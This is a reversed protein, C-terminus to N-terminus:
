NDTVLMGEHDLKMHAAGINQMYQVIDELGGRRVGVPFVNVKKHAEISAVGRSRTSGARVGSDSSALIGDPKIKGTLKLICQPNGDCNIGGGIGAKGAIAIRKMLCPKGKTPRCNPDAKVMRSRSAIPSSGPTKYFSDSRPIDIGGGGYSSPSVAAMRRGEFGTGAAAFGGPSLRGAGVANMDAVEPTAAGAARPTVSNDAIPSLERGSGKFSRGIGSGVGGGSSSGSGGRSVEGMDGGAAPSSFSNAGGIPSSLANQLVAGPAGAQQYIPQDSRPYNDVETERGMTETDVIKRQPTTPRSSPDQPSEPAQSPRREPRPSTELGDPTDDDPGLGFVAAGEATSTFDTKIPERAKFSDGRGRMFPGMEAKPEALSTVVVAQQSRAAAAEFSDHMSGDISSQYRVVENGSRDQIRVYEVGQSLITKQSTAFTTTEAKDIGFGLDSAIKKAEDVLTAQPTEGYGFLGKVSQVVSNVPKEIPTKEDDATSYGRGCNKMILRMQEKQLKAGEGCGGLYNQLVSLSSPNCFVKCNQLEVDLKVQPTSPINLLAAQKSSEKCANLAETPKCVNIEEVASPPTPQQIANVAQAALQQAEFQSRMHAKLGAEAICHDYDVNDSKVAARCEKQIQLNQENLRTPSAEAHVPNIFILSLLGTLIM